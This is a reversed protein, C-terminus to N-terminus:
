IEFHDADLQNQIKSKERADLILINKISRVIYAYLIDLKQQNTLSSFLIPNDVSGHNGYGDNWLYQTVIGFVAQINVTTSTITLTITTNSGNVSFSAPM